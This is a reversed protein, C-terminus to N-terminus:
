LRKSHFESRGFNMTLKQKPQRDCTEARTRAFPLMAGRPDDGAWLLIEAGRLMLSRAVEPVHGEAALM